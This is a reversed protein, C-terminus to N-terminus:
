WPTENVDGTGIVMSNDSFRISIKDGNKTEIVYLTHNDKEMGAEEALLEELERDRSLEIIPCKQRAKRYGYGRVTKINFYEIYTM